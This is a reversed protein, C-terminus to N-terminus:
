VVLKLPDSVLDQLYQLGRAGDAGDAARHDVTLGVDSGFVARFTGDDAVGVRHGITGVSLATCQPPTLLANFSRVGLGGLNSLTGTAGRMADPSLSGSRADAALARVAADLDRIPLLDPDTLVPALLGVPTDVALAVGVHDSTRVGQPTYSGGLLPYRRLMMAYARVLVTTWGVGLLAARRARESAALDLSRELTFQPIGASASMVGATTIRLRRSRADGVLDGTARAPPETPASTREEQEHALRAITDRVDRARIIGTPSSAAVSALDIGAERALMRALPAAVIRSTAATPPLVAPAVLPRSEPEAGRAAPPALLDGLLDDQESEIFAMPEGVPVVDGAEHLIKQVRGAATAEVEMDVKDTTVIAVVDGDTVDDGESVHWEVIIGEEMTMSMKPM